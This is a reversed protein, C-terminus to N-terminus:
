CSKSGSHECVYTDSVQDGTLELLLQNNSDPYEISANITVTRKPDLSITDKSRKSGDEFGWDVPRGDGFLSLIKNGNQKPTIAVEGTNRVSLLTQGHENTDNYVYQINLRKQLDERENEIKQESNDKLTNQIDTLFTFASVSAAVTIGILLVAGIVPTIGKRSM